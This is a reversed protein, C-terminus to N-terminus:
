PKSEADAMTVTPKGPEVTAVLRVVFCERGESRAYEIAEDATACTAEHGLEDNYSSLVWYKGGDHAPKAAPIADLQNKAFWEAQGAYYASEIAGTYNTERAYDAANKREQAADKMLAKRMDGRRILDNDNSM